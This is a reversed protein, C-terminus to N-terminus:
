YSGALYGGEEMPIWNGSEGKCWFSQSGTLKVSINRGEDFMVAEDATPTGRAYFTAFSNMGHFELWVNGFITKTLFFAKPSRNDPAAKLWAASVGPLQSVNNAAFFTTLLGTTSCTLLYSSLTNGDLVIHPGDDKEAYDAYYTAEEMYDYHKGHHARMWIGIYPNTEGEVSALGDWDFQIAGTHSRAYSPDTIQGIETSKGPPATTGQPIYDPRKGNTEPGYFHDGSFSKVTFAYPTNNTLTITERSM